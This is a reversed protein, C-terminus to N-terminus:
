MARSVPGSDETLQAIHKYLNLHGKLSDFYGDWDRETPPRQLDAIFAHEWQEPGRIRRIWFSIEAMARELPHRKGRDSNTLGLRLEAIKRRELRVADLDSLGAELIRVGVDHGSRVIDEIRAVKRHNSLRGAKFDRVHHHCREGKGKGIYFPKEDRPDILAYVYHERKVARGEHAQAKSNPHGTLWAASQNGGNELYAVVIAEGTPDLSPM